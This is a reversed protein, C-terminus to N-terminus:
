HPGQGASGAPWRVVKRLDNDPPGRDNITALTDYPIRAPLDRVSEPTTLVRVPVLTEDPVVAAM